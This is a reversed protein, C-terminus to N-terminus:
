QLANAGHPDEIEYIDTFRRGHASYPGSSVFVRGCKFCKVDHIPCRCRGAEGDHCGCPLLEVRYKEDLKLCEPCNCLRILKTGDPFAAVIALRKNAKTMTMPM